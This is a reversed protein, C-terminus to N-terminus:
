RAEKKKYGNPFKPRYTGRGVLPSRRMNEAHTVPDLHHPNYCSRNRCLHDLEMGEPVPGYYEEYVARHTYLGRGFRGYGTDSIRGQGIYSWCKNM